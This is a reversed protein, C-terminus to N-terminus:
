RDYYSDNKEKRQSNRYSPFCVLTSTGELRQLMSTVARQHATIRLNYNGFDKLVKSSNEVILMAHSIEQFYDVCRAAIDQSITLDIVARLLKKRLLHLRQCDSFMVKYDYPCKQGVRSFCVKDDQM